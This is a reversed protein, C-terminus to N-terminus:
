VYITVSDAAERLAEKGVREEIKEVSNSILTRYRKKSQVIEEALNLFQHSESSSYEPFYEDFSKVNPRHWDGQEKLLSLEILVDENRGDYNLGIPGNHHICNRIAILPQPIERLLTVSDRSVFKTTRVLEDLAHLLSAYRYTSWEAEHLAVRRAATADLFYDQSETLTIRDLVSLSDSHAESLRLELGEFEMVVRAANMANTSVM